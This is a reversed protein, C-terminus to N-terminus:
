EAGELVAGGDKRKLIFFQNRSNEHGVKEYPASNNVQGRSGFEIKGGEGASMKFRPSFHSYFAIGRGYSRSQKAAALLGVRGLAGMILPRNPVQLFTSQTSTTKEPCLLFFNENFVTDPRIKWVGSEQEWCLALVLDSEGVQDPSKMAELRFKDGRCVANVLSPIQWYGHALVSEMYPKLDDVTQPIEALGDQWRPLDCRTSIGGDVNFTHDVFFSDHRCTIDPRGREQGWYYVEIERALRLLVDELIEGEPTLATRDGAPLVLPRGSGATQKRVNGLFTEYARKSIAAVEVENLKKADPNKSEPLPRDGGFLVNVGAKLDATAKNIREIVAENDGDGVRADFELVVKERGTQGLNTEVGIFGDLRKGLGEASGM